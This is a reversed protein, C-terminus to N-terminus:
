VVGLLASWGLAFLLHGANALVILLVYAALARGKSIGSTRAFVRIFLLINVVGSM